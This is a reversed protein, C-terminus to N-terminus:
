GIFSEINSAVEKSIRVGDFYLSIYNSKMAIVHETWIQLIMNEESQWILSIISASPFNKEKNDRLSIYDDYLLNMAMWRIYLSIKQLSIVAENKKLNEPPAGGNLVTNMIKKGEIADINLRALFASRNTTAEDFINALDKPLPPKPQTKEIIQHLIHFAYNQIDLDLIHPGVAYKQLRRSIYLAGDIGNYRRAPVNYKLKTSYQYADEGPPIEPFNEKSRRGSSPAQGEVVKAKAKPTSGTQGKPMEAASAKAKPAQESSAMKKGIGNDSPSSPEAKADDSVMDSDSDSSTDYLVSSGDSVEESLTGGLEKVKAELKCLHDRTKKVGKSRKRIIEHLDGVGRQFQARTVRLARKCADIGGLPM